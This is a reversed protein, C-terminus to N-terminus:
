SESVRSENPRRAVGIENETDIKEGKIVFVRGDQKVTANFGQEILFRFLSDAREHSCSSEFIASKLVICRDDVGSDALKTSSLAPLSDNFTAPENM